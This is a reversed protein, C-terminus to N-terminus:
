RKVAYIGIWESSSLIDVVEFEFHTLHELIEQDESHLVGSLFLKGNLNLKERIHEMNDTLVSRIINATVVDFSDEHLESIGSKILKVKGHVENKEFYEKANEISDDDIDIAVANGVGLKIGAIALIGTGTGFDLMKEEVGEIYDHMLELVLQTTENHGTGFSMKPDIEILIKDETDKLEDKKWSPYIIIRDRIYVPEISKEWEENWNKNEMLHYSFDKEKIVKSELLSDKLLIIKEVEDEEFYIKLMGDEDLITDVGEMYIRNSLEDYNTRKYAILVEYYKNAM